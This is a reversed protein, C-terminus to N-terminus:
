YKEEVVLDKPVQVSGNSDPRFRLHRDWAIKIVGSVDEAHVRGADRTQPGQIRLGTVM